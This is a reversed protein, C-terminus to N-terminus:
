SELNGIINNPKRHSIRIFNTTRHTGGNYYQNLLTVIEDLPHGERILTRVYQERDFLCQKFAITNSIKHLNSVKLLEDIEYTLFGAQVLKQKVNNIEYTNM